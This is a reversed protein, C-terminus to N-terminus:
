VDLFNFLLGYNRPTIRAMLDILHADPGVLIREDDNEIGRIIISAAEAPSTMTVQDFKQVIESRNRNGGPASTIRANRAINTKIGGPHVTSVKVSSNKLEYKLSDTFGRVAFKAANYASQTPVSILGFISSVNVINAKDAKKLEPLFFKTGYVVGWFNISMLWEFDEISTEEVTGAVAVGANNIVIHVQGLDERIQAPLKEMAKRDAVDVIYTETKSTVCLSATENLNEENIDTLALRCGKQGLQVALERGIGSGAGTILATRNNLDKMYGGNFILCRNVSIYISVTTDIEKYGYLCSSILTNINLAHKLIAM